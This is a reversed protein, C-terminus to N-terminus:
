LNAVIQRLWVLRQEFDSRHQPPVQQQIVQQITPIMQALISFQEIAKRMEEPSGALQFAEFAAQPDNPDAQMSLLGLVQRVQQIVDAAHQEGLAYAKEFCPLSEQIRDTNFLLSGKNFWAQAFAPDLAIAQSFDRLAEEFQRLACLTVGRNYYTTADAPDLAIAQDYDRLAEEHRGLAELTLGRNYYTTALTPDLTIAQDYDRLAEERRGLEALTLGRNSYATADAPDLAIAQSFDRLAEEFRQLAYFTIGRNAYAKALAPDLTIAQDYDRLAEERQGLEALALGRNAYATADAPDLAIARAFDRLAEERRKLVALTLGRNAYAQAYTPDLAIVQDYDRLAEEHRGLEALTLGRNAYALALAPDLAVAQDYDRLAEERRGLSRLTIGRNAYAPALAPDLTVAQDYDRLAEERRGLEALTLGRNSYAQAYTPDLAIAQDYDRLAEERRGLEKLTAGRNSHDRATFEAINVLPLIEGCCVEYLRILEDLLIELHGYRDERRKALCKALINQVEPPFSSNLMPVPAKLHQARLESVTRGDYPWCGTLLEYLICGVAYLDTRFDLTKVNEGLWQEPPMYVPTGVINGAYRSQGVATEDASAMELNAKQAVTALGFDTIKAQRGHNVLINDPKLDRHIIGPSKQQAHQLGRVIDITFKLALKLDLSGHELWGRLDTGKGKEEAVWELAMFPINDLKQMWLCQVINPHRELAIWSAVENKFIDALLPSSVQFTKLAVPFMEQEDLCLYVEGMGGTLAQHVLFRGGIRAGKRYRTQHQSTM